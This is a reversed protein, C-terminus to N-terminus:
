KIIAKLVQTFGADVVWILVAVFAVTVFVIGTFSILETRGPWTVKKLEAKVERFFKKWRSANTQVATEQAAM